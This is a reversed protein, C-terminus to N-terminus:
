LCAVFPDAPTLLPALRDSWQNRGLHAKQQLLPQAPSLRKGMEAATILWPMGALVMESCQSALLDNKVRGSAVLRSIMASSLKLCAGATINSYKCWSVPLLCARPVPDSVAHPHSSM